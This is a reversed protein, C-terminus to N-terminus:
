AQPPAAVVSTTAGQAVRLGLAARWDEPAKGAKVQEQTPEQVRTALGLGRLSRIFLWGLDLQWWRLGYCASAPFAHHNNHFGEGTTLLALWTCNTSLDGVDYSRWGFRHGFSNVGWTLNNGLLYRVAVGWRLGDGGWLGWLALLYASVFLLPWRHIMQFYSDEWLDPCYRRLKEETVNPFYDDRIWGLHAHFLGRGAGHPDQPRDSFRHHQRHVCAWEIPDGQLALAGCTALFIEMWRPVQFSRHSLLRHYGVDIGLGCVLLQLVAVLGMGSWSFHFLLTHLGIWQLLIVVLYHAPV